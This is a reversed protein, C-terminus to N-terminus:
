GQRYRAFKGRWYHVAPWAVAAGVILLFGVSQWFAIPDTALLYERAPRRFAISGTAIARAAMGLLGLAPAFWVLLGVAVILRDLMPTARSRPREISEVGHWVALLGAVATILPSAALVAGLLTTTLVLALGELPEIHQWVPGLNRFASITLPLAILFIILARFAQRRRFDGDIEDPRRSPFPFM